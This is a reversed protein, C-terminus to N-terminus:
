IRLLKYFTVKFLKLWKNMRWSFDEDNFVSLFKPFEYDYKEM